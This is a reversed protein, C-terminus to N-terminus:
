SLQFLAVIGPDVDGVVRTWAVFCNDAAVTPKPPMQIGINYTDGNLKVATTKGTTTATTAITKLTRTGDACVNVNPLALKATMQPFMTRFTKYPVFQVEVKTTDDFHDDEKNRYVEWKFPVNRGAAVTNVVYNLGYTDYLGMNVPSKFGYYRYGVVVTVKFTKTAPPNVGDTATCTVTTVGYVFTSGSAPACTVPVIGKVADFASASYTVVAGTKSTGTAVIDAPVTIVPAKTDTVTVVFTATSTNPGDTATCTVTTSGVPFLSGSAPLCTVEPAGAVADTATPADYSVNAGGVANGEIPALVPVPSIVPAITDRVTVTFSGTSTNGSADTASCDVTTVGLGFTSDSAPTCVAVVTGDAIDSVTTAFTVSAGAPGTAEAVINAPVTLSPHRRHRRHRRRVLRRRRQRGADTVTCTVSTTGLPFVSGSAPLASRISRVM